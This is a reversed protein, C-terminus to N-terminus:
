KSKELSAQLVPRLKEAVLAHGKDSPHLGDLLLEECESNRLGEADYEAYIDVLPVNMDKAVGRMREAYTKLIKTFGQTAKTDYPAGGYLKLLKPRWRIQNPTMFIVEAGAERLQTVFSRLNKEYDDLSIRSETAPPKKWLDVAADNIGFQIVVVDPHHALVDRALRQAAMKTDNGGVGKNLFKTSPFMETLLTTYIKVEGRPATTSDGFTIVLPNTDGAASLTPFGLVLLLSLCLAVGRVLFHTKSNMGLSKRHRLAIRLSACHRLMKLPMPVKYVNNM